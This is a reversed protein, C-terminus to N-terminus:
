NLKTESWLCVTNRDTIAVCYKGNPSVVAKGIVIDDTQLSLKKSKAHYIDEVPPWDLINFAEIEKIRQLDHNHTKLCRIDYFWIKGYADGCTLLGM